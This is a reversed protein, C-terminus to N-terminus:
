YELKGDFMMDKVKYRMKLEIMQTGSHTRSHFLVDGSEPTIFPKGDVVRPFIYRAGFGDNGPQQYEQLFVRKGGAVLYTDNKLENTTVKYFAQTSQQLLATAKESDLSVTVVIYDPFDAAAFAKLRAAVQDNLKGKQDLEMRRAIAQRTPKASLFRIRFNVSYNEMARSQGTEQGTLQVTVSQTQCWPSDTLLKMAEKESWETYPKKDWQASIVLPVAMLLALASAILLRNGIKM